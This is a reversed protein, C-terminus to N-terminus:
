LMETGLEGGQLLYSGVLSIGLNIVALAGVVLTSTEIASYIIEIGGLIALLGVVGSFVQSSLGAKLLGLAVLTLGGMALERPLEAFWSVAQPTLSYTVLISIIALILRFLNGALEGGQWFRARIDKELPGVSTDLGLITLFLVLSSIAGAILKVLALQISWVVSTLLFIGIYMTFLSGIAVQWRVRLILVLGAGIVVFQGIGGPQLILESM